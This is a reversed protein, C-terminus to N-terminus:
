AWILYKLDIGPTHIGTKKNIKLIPCIIVLTLHILHRRVFRFQFIGVGLRLSVDLALRIVKHRRRALLQLDPHRTVTLWLNLRMIRLGLYFIKFRNRVYENWNKIM